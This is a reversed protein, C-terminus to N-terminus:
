VPTETLKPSPFLPLFMVITEQSTPSKQKSKKEQHHPPSFWISMLLCGMLQMFLSIFYCYNFLKLLIKGSDLCKWLMNSQTMKSTERKVNLGQPVHLADAPIEATQQANSGVHPLLLYHGHVIRGGNDFKM